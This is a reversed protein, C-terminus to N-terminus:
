YGVVAQQGMKNGDTTSPNPCYFLPCIDLVQALLVIQMAATKFPINPIFHSRLLTEVMRLFIHQTDVKKGSRSPREASTWSRCGALRRRCAACRWWGPVATAPTCPCYPVLHEGRSRRCVQATSTPKLQRRVATFPPFGKLSGNNVQFQLVKNGSM